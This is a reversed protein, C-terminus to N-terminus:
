TIRNEMQGSWISNGAKYERLDSWIGLLLLHCLVIVM